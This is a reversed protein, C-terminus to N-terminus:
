MKIFKQTSKQNTENMLTLWYVGKGLHSIDLSLQRGNIHANLLKNGAIGSIEVHVDMDEALSINLKDFAPNPFVTFAPQPRENANIATPNITCSQISTVKTSSNLSDLFNNWSSANGKLFYDLYPMVFNMATLQQESRSLPVGGPHCSEEGTTCLFNYNAFNCHGGNKISIFTKCPSSLSDFMPTQHEAPPAVCDLEGAIVLAPITVNTASHISSPDTNAAAFTVMVTPISNNECALFSAGGGMSHGMIASTASIQQYFPSASNTGESKLKNILFALDRGFELHNPAGSETKPLAVIYGLPVLATWVNEYASVSMVFGHGYVIVPFQGNALAVNDGATTGPYYIETEINRNSRAPDQFTITRHGVQFQAFSISFFPILVLVFLIKKM